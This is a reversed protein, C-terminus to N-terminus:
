RPPCLAASVTVKRSGVLLSVAVAVTALYAVLPLITVPTWVIGEVVPTSWVANPFVIRTLSRFSAPAFFYFSLPFCCFSAILALFASARPVRYLILLAIIYSLIGIYTAELLRGTIWGGSFETGDLGDTRWWAASISLLIMVVLLLRVIRLSTQM